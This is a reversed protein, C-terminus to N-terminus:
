GAVEGDPGHLGQTLVGPRGVSGGSDLRLHRVVLEVQHGRNTQRTSCRIQFESDLREEITTHERRPEAYAQDLARSVLTLVRAKHHREVEPINLTGSTRQM